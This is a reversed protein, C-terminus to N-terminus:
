SANGDLPTVDILLGNKGNEVGTTGTICFAV